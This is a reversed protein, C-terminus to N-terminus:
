AITKLVTKEAPLSYEVPKVAGQESPAATEAGGTKLADRERMTVVWLAFFVTSLGILIVVIFSLTEKKFPMGGKVCNDCNKGDCGPHQSVAANTQVVPKPQVVPTPM